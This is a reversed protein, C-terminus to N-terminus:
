FRKCRWSHLNVLRAMLSVASVALTMMRGGVGPAAAKPLFLWAAAFSEGSKFVVDRKEIPM